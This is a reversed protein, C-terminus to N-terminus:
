DNTKNLDIMDGDSFYVKNNLPNYFCDCTSNGISSYNNVDTPEECEDLTCSDGLEYTKWSCVHNSTREVVTYIGTYGYENTSLKTYRFVPVSTIILFLNFLILFSIFIYTKKLFLKINKFSIIAFLVTVVSLILIINTYNFAIEDGDVGAAMGSGIVYLLSKTIVLAIIVSWYVIRITKNNDKKVKLM